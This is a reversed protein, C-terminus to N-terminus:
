PKLSKMRLMSLGEIGRVVKMLEVVKYKNRCCKRPYIKAYLTLYLYTQKLVHSVLQELSIYTYLNMYIKKKTFWSKVM